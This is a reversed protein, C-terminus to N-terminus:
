GFMVEQMYNPLNKTLFDFRQTKTGFETLKQYEAKLQENNSLGKIKEGLFDWAGTFNEAKYSRASVCIWHIYIAVALGLLFLNDIYSLMKKILKLMSTTTLFM